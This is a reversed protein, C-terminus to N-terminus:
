SAVPVLTITHDPEIGFNVHTSALIIGGTERHKAILTVLSNLARDDLGVSPEDLLWLSRSTLRLRTLALRRKQGASLRAAVVDALETLSFHDFIGIPMANTGFFQCWFHLNERVTLSSKIADQHAIYHCQESLPVEVKGGSHTLRGATTENLGAILRLLSSKGAGNPGRLAVFSGAKLEFSLNSLVEGGGRQCSINAATIHLM